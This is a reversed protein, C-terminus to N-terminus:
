FNTSHCMVQNTAIKSKILGTHRMSILRPMTMLQNSHFIYPLEGYKRMPGSQIKLLSPITLEENDVLVRETTSHEAYGIMVSKALLVASQGIRVSIVM